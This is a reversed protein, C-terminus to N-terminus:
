SAALRATTHPSIDEEEEKEGEGEKEEEEGATTIYFLSKEEKPWLHTHTRM